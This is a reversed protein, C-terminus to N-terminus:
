VQCKDKGGAHSALQPGKSELTNHPYVDLTYTWKSVRWAVM